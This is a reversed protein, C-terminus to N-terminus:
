SEGEFRYRNSNNVGIVRPVIAGLNLYLRGEGLDELSGLTFGEEETIKIYM